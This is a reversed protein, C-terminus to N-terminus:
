NAVAGNRISTITLLDLPKLPLGLASQVIQIPAFVDTFELIAFDVPMAGKGLVWSCITRRALLSPACRVNRMPSRFATILIYGCSRWKVQCKARGGTSTISSSISTRTNHFSCTIIQYYWQQGSQTPGLTAQYETQDWGICLYLRFTIKTVFYNLHVTKQYSHCWRKIHTLLITFFNCKTSQM